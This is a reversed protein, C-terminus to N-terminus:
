LMLAILVLVSITLFTGGLRLRTGRAIFQGPDAPPTGAERDKLLALLKGSSPTIVAVAVLLVVGYLASAIHLILWPAAWSFPM